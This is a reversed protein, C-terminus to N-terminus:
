NNAMEERNYEIAYKFAQIFHEKTDDGQQGEVGESREVHPVYATAIDITNSCTHTKPFPSHVQRYERNNGEVHVNETCRTSIQIIGGPPLCSSGTIFKLLQMIEEKTTGEDQIWEKLWRVKQGIVVNQTTDHIQRVILNRDLSGQLASNFQNVNRTRINQNWHIDHTNQDYNGGKRCISKMGKAIAQIGRLQPDLYTELVGKLATKLQPEFQSTRSLLPRRIQEFKVNVREFIIEVAEQFEDDEWEEVTLLGEVTERLTGEGVRPDFERILRTLVERIRQESFEQRFTAKVSRVEETEWMEERTPANGNFFPQIDVEHPQNFVIDVAQQFQGTNWARLRLLERAGEPPTIEEGIQTLANRVQQNRGRNQYFATKVRQERRIDWIENEPINRGMLESPTVRVEQPLAGAPELIEVVEALQENTWHASRLLAIKRQHVQDQQAALLIRYLEFKREFSLRSFDSNIENTTYAFAVAFVSPDIHFGIPKSSYCYMMVEGLDEFVDLDTEPNPNPVALSTNDLRKFLNRQSTLGSILDDLYEKTVGGGDAAHQNHFGVNMSASDRVQIHDEVIEAFAQLHEVPRERLARKEIRIKIQSQQNYERDLSYGEHYNGRLAVPRNNGPNIVPENNILNNRARPTDPICRDRCRDIGAISCFSLLSVACFGYGVFDLWTLATPSILSGVWLFVIAGILSIVGLAAVIAEGNEAVRRLCNGEGNGCGNSCIPSSSM